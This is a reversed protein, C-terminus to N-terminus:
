GGLDGGWKVFLGFCDGCFLMNWYSRKINWYSIKINWYSIEINWYSIVYKVVDNYCKFRLVVVDKCVFVVRGGCNEFLKKM